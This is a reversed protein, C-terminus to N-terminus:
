PLVCFGLVMHGPIRVYYSTKFLRFSHPKLETPRDMLVSEPGSNLYPELEVRVELKVISLEMELM